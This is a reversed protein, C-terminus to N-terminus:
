FTIKYIFFYILKFSRDIALTNVGMRQGTLGNSVLTTLYRQYVHFNCPNNLSFM